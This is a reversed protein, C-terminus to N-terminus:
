LDECLFSNLIRLKKLLEDFTVISIDGFSNRFIEFSKIAEYDTPTTGIILCCRTSYSEFSGKSSHSKQLFNKQFEYKQDLLQSIASTLQASPAYREGYSTRKTVKLLKTSPRKIEIIASNNTLANQMFFDSIRDDTGDIKNSGVYAQERIRIVPFGFAMSLIFQNRIFFKQWYSERYNKGIDNEFEETLHKLKIIEVSGTIKTIKRSNNEFLSHANKAMTKMFENQEENTLTRKGLLLETFSKRLPHRGFSPINEEVDMNQSLINHVKSYKVSRASIRSHNVIKNVSDRIDDLDKQSVYFTKRNPLPGTDFSYGIMIENYNNLDQVVDIIIRYDLALGFGFVPNRTLGEPLGQLVDTIHDTSSFDPVSSNCCLNTFNDITIRKIKKYKSKLFGPKDGRTEIPLMTFLDNELDIEIIKTKHNKSSCQDLDSSEINKRAPLFFVIITSSSPQEMILKGFEEPNTDRRDPLMLNREAVASEM